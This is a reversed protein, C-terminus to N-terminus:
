TFLQWLPMLIQKLDLTISRDHCVCLCICVYPHLDLIQAPTLYYDKILKQLNEASEAFLVIDDAFAFVSVFFSADTKM